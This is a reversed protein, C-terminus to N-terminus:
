ITVLWCIKRCTILSVSRFYKKGFHYEVEQNNKTWEPKLQVRNILPDASWAEDADDEVTVPQSADLPQTAIVAPRVRIAVHVREDLNPEERERAPTRSVPTASDRTSSPSPTVTTGGVASLPRATSGTGYGTATSSRSQPPTTM